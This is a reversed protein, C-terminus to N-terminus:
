FYTQFQRYDARHLVRHPSLARIAAAVPRGASGGPTLLQYCRRRWTMQRYVTYRLTMAEILKTRQASRQGGSHHAFLDFRRYNGATTVHSQLWRELLFFVKKVYNLLASRAQKHAHWRSQLEKSQTRTVLMEKFCSIVDNRNRFCSLTPHFDLHRIRFPRSPLMREM